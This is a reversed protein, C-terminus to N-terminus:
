KLINEFTRKRSTSGIVQLPTLKSNIARFRSQVSSRRPCRLCKPSKSIASYAQIRKRRIGTANKKLMKAPTAREIANKKLSASGCKVRTGCDPCIAYDDADLVAFQM